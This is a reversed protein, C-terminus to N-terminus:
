QNTFSRGERKRLPLQLLDGWKENTEVNIDTGFGAQDFFTLESFYVKGEVDYLDVRLHSFGEALKRAIEKMDEFAAPKELERELEPENWQYYLRNWDVDYHLFKTQGIHRDKCVCVNDIVGNFLFFKYDRLEGLIKDELYPEAIIRPKVDKYPWERASFYYNKRLSNEIKKRAKERDLCSKDRVIVLGGSDHTCKLVFQEPLSDFDIDDFRDWVGLTPIIYEQGIIDAVYKKAECKDVMTTYEPKRDYLKLWQLKENYLKPQELNLATGFHVKYIMKLYAEDSMWHFWGHMGLYYLLLGPKKLYKKVNM